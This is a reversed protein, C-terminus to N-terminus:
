KKSTANRAMRRGHLTKRALRIEELEAGSLGFHRQLVIRDVMDVAKSQDSGRLSRAIQPILATLEDKVASLTSISPVPLLDAERPEHKLLGGGYARGVVEAGLLTVSNLCAVPLLATGLDRRSDGLVVGYLSNLPYVGADNTILKPSDHNMYTFLLDPLRVRPVRWWPSRTRCKYTTHIGMIEGYAIYRKAHPSPEDAPAFLFCRKGSRRLEDWAQDSFTRGRLHKSGPPSIKMLDSPLLRLEAVRAQNFTFFDNNGTVTGLYTEGWDSLSEFREGAIVKEYATRAEQSLLASTWKQDPAPAYGIWSHVRISKLASTDRAQYVEFSTSAGKGEALLLVVEESVGPFVLNEFLVLRVKSFRSLLYKRVQAAYGVALLEAPLVLGLRGNPKLFQCAHITFAAWSSALGSLRVGQALAARLSKSRAEGAFEQYRIYPPNGIVADFIPQPAEEFFDGVAIKASVGAGSLLRSAALASEPHIEIGFLHSNVAGAGQSINQVRSAAAVLFAAEGCSPELIVDDESRIAWAAIFDTIDSPTFFAGRAKRLVSTDM